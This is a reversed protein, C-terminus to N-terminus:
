LHSGPSLRVLGMKALLGASRIVVVVNAAMAAAADAVTVPGEIALGLLRETIDRPMAVDLFLPHASLQRFQAMSAGDSASLLAAPSISFTPYHGFAAFPDPRQSTAVPAAGWRGMAVSDALAHRRRATLEAWLDQYARYVVPWDYTERAHQRGADGM